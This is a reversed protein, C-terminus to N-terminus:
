TEIQGNAPEAPSDSLGFCRTYGAGTRHSGSSVGVLHVEKLAVATIQERVIIMLVYNPNPSDPQLLDFRDQEWRGVLTEFQATYLGVLQYV